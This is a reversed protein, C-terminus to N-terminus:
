EKALWPRTTTCIIGTGWGVTFLFIVCFDLKRVEWDVILNFTKCCTLLYDGKWRGEGLCHHASGKDQILSRVCSRRRRCRCRLFAIPKTLLVVVSCTVSKQVNRQWGQVVIVHCSWIELKKSSPVPLAIFEVMETQVRTRGGKNLELM